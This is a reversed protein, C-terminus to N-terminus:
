NVGNFRWKFKNDDSAYQLTIPAGNNQSNVFLALGTTPHVILADSGIGTESLIRWRNDGPDTTLVPTNNPTLSMPYGLVWSHDPDTLYYEGSNSSPIIEWKQPFSGIGEMSVAQNKISLATIAAFVNTINTATKKSFAAGNDKLKAVYDKASAETASIPDEPPNGGGGMGPGLISPYNLTNPDQLDTGEKDVPEFVWRQSKYNTQGTYIRDTVATQTGTAANGSIIWIAQNAGNIQFIFEDAEEAQLVVWSRLKSSAIM